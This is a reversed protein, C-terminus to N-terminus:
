QFSGSPEMGSPILVVVVRGALVGFTLFRQEHYDFRSDEFTMTHGAFLAEIGIFDIGHKRLNEARKAEAWEFRV